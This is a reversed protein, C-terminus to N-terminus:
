DFPPGDNLMEGLSSRVHRVYSILGAHVCEDSAAASVGFVMTLAKDVVPNSRIAEQTAAHDLELFGQILAELTIIKKSFLPGIHGLNQEALGALARKDGTLVRGSSENAVAAFLLAEGADVGPAANLRELVDFDVDELKLKTTSKLFDEIQNAADETKCLELRNRKPLLKYRISDLVLFQISGDPNSFLKPLHELIEYQALKLIVDNDVFLKLAM